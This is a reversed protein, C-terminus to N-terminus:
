RVVKVVHRATAGKVLDSGVYTITLTKRGVKAFTPLVIRAVGNSLTATRSGHNPIAVRVSGTPAVGEAAVTVVLTAATRGAHVVSPTHRASVTAAAKAVTVTVSGTGPAVQDDGLYALALDHVGPRLATAPIAVHAVGDALTGEGLVTAGDKLQVTGTPTRDGASVTVTVTGAKGYVMSVPDATVTAEAPPVQTEEVQVVVPIVTGTDSGTVTLETAGGPTSAPLTVAVSATGAEDNSNASGDASSSVTTTVPFTGLVEEGLRVTVSQDRVDVPDTMSLSSLDFAVEDGPAYTAPADAPFTVGVAHQSYDVPVGQADSGFAAMYDVMAQLDTMGTDQKNAGNALEWFNDGGSALFSNVTVSYTAAPDIPKGDLWMGTVHGSTKGDAVTQYYSYTFGKSTGLKLFARSPVSGTATRQWQQELVTKIQAGTLDMNVLTNAFPQVVAAQQYTLPRPYAGSGSGVMDSRLGGPNMFAIQASGVTEPTAWRQVEAVLNGLTSEGGRNETTGNAFKARKFPGAVNGLVKSGLQQSAAVAASVIQEVAPDSPYNFTTASGKLDLVDQSKGVVDGTVPDVTFVLQNLAMGYQGASVVPRDTVPRGAWGAVPFSCNYALHTHGSVIADVNDNVGTIISGFPSTPDDDMTACSTSSAGEHVLMVVVDAGEAKLDDAAANTAQVIDTIELDAIGSPSVLSPLDETVAGIFGVQVGDMDKIWTGDLADSGDKFKVNAGLYKWQAGGHPNTEPDYSAMVRNVLDDYGKDFEHNGVASVELGAENLADITPKDEQIFSEFTSAGILDGAAAFVTDPNQSRLQKVAGSLVAAGAETNSTNNQIRGHFDNTALVQIDRANDPQIGVVEPNHDSAAFPNNAEFFQTANYNFRSYQFAISEDANIEWVDAGTVMTAAAENALVHDLSGSLGGFSYSDDEPDDSEVAQFGAGYLAQMPDEQTYSNFDGTLFIKNTGRAQAFENAFAVLAKAQRVRDGNFAGQEGNANDGTAPPTSDGKSKFHNVIVAFASSNSEGTPKFAQALPERANAFPSTPGAFLMDSQGVPRVKKPKYIFATRIVDQEAVNAATTAETPSAVFAWTGAGAAENLAAVLGRVADDRYTEKLLKMSNEIEELSVIDAGLGNIATVIKAQQRALNAANAAGRPGSSGAGNAQTSCTNTAIPNNARDTFYTCFGGNAVYQEGTTNFYNLVNFTALKIDGGVDQPTTNEERTNEFTAVDAGSDTVQTTPQFKWSNNRFELVVPSKLTAAAGVRIPNAPSLWPLPTNRAAGTLYNTTSGDDLIVGRAANDAKIAALGETDTAPVEDTPQRLPEDGTALGIEAFGNTNFVNSVTFHDTPALLEGEHAERSAETTPYAASLAAVSDGASAATVGGAAPTIETTGSFESVVGTVTVTDGIAFTDAGSGSGFVFIADSADPTADTAGGTGPTQVYLGNFGGSPYKATVVGTTTVTADLYPSTDTGTGQIAAIAGTFTGAAPVCESCGTPTPSGLTFDAANNDTDAGSAARKASQTATAAPGAAKESSTAAGLGVMDIVGDTASLDGQAAPVISSDLLLVQGGSAVMNIAPSAVRNPTPLPDGTAGTSSMRLLYTGEAPVTGRLAVSGGLSGSDSRYAVYKGLLDVPADTPNYLEVFDANYRAGSNGGAGYVERIVLDTGAPNAQASSPVLLLGSAVVALGLAGALRKRTAPM